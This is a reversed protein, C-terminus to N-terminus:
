ADGNDGPALIDLIIRKASGWRFDMRGWASFGRKRRRADAYTLRARSGKLSLERERLLLRAEQRDVSGSHSSDTCIRFWQLVFDFAARRLRPNVNRLRTWAVELDWTYLDEGAQNLSESWNRLRREFDACEKEDKNIRALMLNYYIAAGQHVLSIRLAEQLLQRTSPPADTAAPCSWAYQADKVAQAHGSELVHALLSGPNSRGIQERLFDCEVRPMAFTAGTPFGPPPNPLEAWRRQVPDAEAGDESESLSHFRSDLTPETRSPLVPETWGPDRRIGWKGLGMWYISSPWRKLESGAVRGIVGAGPGETALLERCLQLQLDRERRQRDRPRAREASQLIWPVFLFYRARTQITTTGPFFADALTDRITGIGLDDLTSPQDLASALALALERERPSSDIWSFTSVM